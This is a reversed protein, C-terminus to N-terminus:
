SEYDNDIYVDETIERVIAGYTSFEFYGCHETFVAVQRKSDNIVSFAFKFYCHSKDSFTISVSTSPSFDYASLGKEQIKEVLRGLKKSLEMSWNKVIKSQKM